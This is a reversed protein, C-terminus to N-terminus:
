QKIMLTFNKLITMGDPTRISEPHFQVGEILHRRHRIGMIEGEPTEATIVLEEPLATRDVALSHYRMAQFPQPLNTFLGKQDHAIWSTKGHMPKRARVVKGGFIEAICQHGLCVGLIPIKGISAFILEKSIGSNSPDSPGPSIVLAAPSLALCDQTSLENNRVVKIKVELM